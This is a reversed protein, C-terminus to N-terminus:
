PQVRQHALTGYHKEAVKAKQAMKAVVDPHALVADYQKALAADLARELAQHQYDHQRMAELSMMVSNGDADKPDAAAANEALALRAAQVEPTAEVLTRMLERLEDEHGRIEARLNAHHLNIGVEQHPKAARLAQITESAIPKVKSKM